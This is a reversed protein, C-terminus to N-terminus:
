KIQYKQLQKRPFVTRLYCRLSIADPFKKKAAVGTIVESTRTIDKFIETLTQQCKQTLLFM